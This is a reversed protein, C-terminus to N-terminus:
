CIVAWVRTPAWRRGAGDIAVGKFRVRPDTLGILLSFEGNATDFLILGSERGVVVADDATLVVFGIEEPTPWTATRGHDVLTKL